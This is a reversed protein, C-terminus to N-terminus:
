DEQAQGEDEAAAPTAPVAAAAAQASFRELYSTDLQNKGRSIALSTDGEQISALRWVGEDYGFIWISEFGSQTGKKGKLVKGSAVQELYDVLNVTVRICLSSMSAENEVSVRLPAFRPKSKLKVVNRKGEDRWRDLMDQQSQFYDGTMFDRAPALDGESWKSYVAEFAARAHGEVERWAFYPYEAALAKLDRKTQYVAWQERGYVYLILPLLIVGAVALLVQLWPSNKVAKAFVGGAAAQAQDPVLALAAGVLIAAVLVFLWSKWRIAM